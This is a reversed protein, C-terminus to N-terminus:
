TISQPAARIPVLGTAPGFPFAAQLLYTYQGTTRAFIMTMAASPKRVSMM